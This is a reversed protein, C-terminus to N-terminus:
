EDKSLRTQFFDLAQKGKCYNRRAKKQAEKTDVYRPTDAAMLLLMPYSINWMIYRPTWGTASAIQWILGFPSHPGETHGKLERNNWPEFPSDDCEDDAGIQYYDLFVKHGVFTIATVYSGAFLGSACALTFLM